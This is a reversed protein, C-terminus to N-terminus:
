SRQVSLSLFKHAIKAHVRHAPRAPGVELAAIAISGILVIMIGSPRIRATLLVAFAMLVVAFPVM